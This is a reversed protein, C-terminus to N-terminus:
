KDEAEVTEQLLKIYKKGWEDMAETVSLFERGIETLSYEVKPPVQKYVERHVIGDKELERLQQTLYGQRINPLARHIEGFRMTGKSLFHIIAFKWKGQMVVNAIGVSCGMKLLDKNMM